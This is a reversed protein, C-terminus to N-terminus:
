GPYTGQGGPLPAMCPFIHVQSNSLICQLYLYRRVALDMGESKGTYPPPSALYIIGPIGVVGSGQPPTPLWQPTNPIYLRAAPNEPMWTYLHTHNEGWFYILPTDKEGLFYIFSYFKSFLIHIQVIKSIPLVHTYSHTQNIKLKVEGLIYISRPGPDGTALGYGFDHCTVGGGTNATHCVPMLINCSSDIVLVIIIIM